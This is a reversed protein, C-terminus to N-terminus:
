LFQAWASSARSAGVPVKSERAVAGCSAQEVLDDSTRRKVDHRGPSAERRPCRLQFGDPRGPSPRSAGDEGSISRRHEDPDAPPVMQSRGATPILEGGSERGGAPSSRRRDDVGGICTHAAPVAL